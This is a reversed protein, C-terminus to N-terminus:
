GRFAVELKKALIPMPKDVSFTLRKVKPSRSMWFPFSVSQSGDAPTLTVPQSASSPPVYRKSNTSADNNTAEDQSQTATPCRSSAQDDAASAGMTGLVALVVASLAVAALMRRVWQSTSVM